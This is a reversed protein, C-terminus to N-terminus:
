REERSRFLLRIGVLVIVLPWLRWLDLGPAFEAALLLAGIVVLIIGFWVGGRRPRRPRQWSGGPQQPYAPPAPPPAGPPNSGEPRPQEQTTSDSMQAMPPGSGEVTEVPEEPVVITVILYAIVATGLSALGLLVALLRVLTPDVDLYDAIGGCVGAIIRDHRSRYLKREM